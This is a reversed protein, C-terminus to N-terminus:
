RLTSLTGDAIVPFQLSVADFEANPGLTQAVAGNIFVQTSDAASRLTGIVSLMGNPPQSMAELLPNFFQGQTLEPIQVSWIGRGHTAVVVEDEEVVLYWIGVSPLGNDALAWTAGGDLSEILGIESGVWIKDPDNPFVILDYIAVDPFGNTSVTGTGFGSIDNWTLGYDTTKLLKPRQAFSFLLFATGPETPHTAMGTIRGMVVDTYHTVADFGGGANTSVFIDGSGDMRAGAWVVDPDAESVRIDHFSSLSGWLGGSTTRVSWGAGFNTSRWPGNAGVAYLYDPRANSKGIKTLFPANGGGTDTLNTTASVWTSGGDLSRMFGNYQYGGIIKDPDDFHWSTEYGDGGIQDLWPDYQTSNIPSQWTGNDQMGGVYASAGPRKDVGYFQSTTLGDIPATWGTDGSSSYGVGGDNTNLIYWGGGSPEVIQLGHHDVHVNGTSLQSAGYFPSGLVNIVIRWLRIGGVYVIRADDPSCVITNDYWGQAGLWSQSADTENGGVWTAGGDISHWLRSVDVTTSGTTYSGEASMFLFDTNIPSIALEFRGTKDTITGSINSWTLGADTSKIPGGAYITAYQINFDTPDAVLQLIRPATFSATGNAVYVETWTTGGDESRFIHSSPQLSVKTTGVTTSVLVIDPDTPDVIIRSVNNFRYDDLTSALQTWTTGGDISKFVGNGNMTDINWYSEGTGAYITLPDAPSVALSQMQIMPLDDMLGTWTAGKNTTKWIGGGVSAILWTDGTPDSPDVVIARARGAVNGPGRNIWPLPAAPARRAARAQNLERLQYGPEYSPATRDSSIKAQELYLMYEDPHGKAPEGDRMAHLRDIKQNAKFATWSGDEAHLLRWNWKEEEVQDWTRFTDPTPVFNVLSVLLVICAVATVHGYRLNM